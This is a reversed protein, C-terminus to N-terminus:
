GGARALKRPLCLVLRCEGDVDVKRWRGEHEGNRRHRVDIGVHRVNRAVRGLATKVKMGREDALTLIDPLGCVPGSRLSAAPKPFDANRERWNSAAQRSVGFVDALEAVGVLVTRDM